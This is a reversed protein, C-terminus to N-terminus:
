MFDKYYPEKPITVYIPREGTESEGLPIQTRNQRRRDKSFKGIKRQREEEM